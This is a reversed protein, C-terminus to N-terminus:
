ADSVDILVTFMVPLTTTAGGNSLFRIAQGATVDNNASPTSSDVDGAQSGSATLSVVGDTINVGGISPTITTDGDCAVYITSWITTITGDIPAVVYASSAAAADEMYCNIAVLNANNLTEGTPVGSTVKVYDGDTLASFDLQAATVNDWAGSGSGDAIYVTGSSAADVGKPEHLDTTSLLNHLITAM